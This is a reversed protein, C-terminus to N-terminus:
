KEPSSSVDNKEFYPDVMMLIQCKESGVLIRIKDRKTAETIVM